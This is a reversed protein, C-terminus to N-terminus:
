KRRRGTLKQVQRGNGADPESSGDSVRRDIEAILEVVDEVVTMAALNEGNVAGGNVSDGNVSKLSFRDDGHHLPQHKGNVSETANVINSDDTSPKEKISNSLLRTASEFRGRSGVAHQSQFRSSHPSFSIFTSGLKLLCFILAQSLRLAPKMNVPSAIELLHV